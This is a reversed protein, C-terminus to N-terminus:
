DRGGLENGAKTDTCKNEVDIDRKIRGSCSQTQSQVTWSQLGHVHMSVKIEWTKIRNQIYLPLMQNESFWSKTKESCTDLMFVKVELLVRYEKGNKCIGLLSYQMVTVGKKLRFVLEAVSISNLSHLHSWKAHIFNSIKELSWKGWTFVLIYRGEKGDSSQYCPWILHNWTIWLYKISMASSRLGSFLLKRRM